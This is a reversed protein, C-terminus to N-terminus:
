ITIHKNSAQFHFNKRSNMKCYETWNNPKFIREPAKIFCNLFLKVSLAFFAQCFSKDINFQM